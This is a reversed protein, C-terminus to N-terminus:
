IRLKKADSLKNLVHRQNGSTLLYLRGDQTWSATLKDKYKKRLEDLTKARKATLSELIHMKPSSGKLRKKAKYVLDRINYHSFKVIIGRPKNRNAKPGLRHSRDIDGPRVHINLNRKVIGFRLKMLTKVTM